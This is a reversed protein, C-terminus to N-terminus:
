RGGGANRGPQPHPHHRQDRWCGRAKARLASAVTPGVSAKGGGTLNNAFTEQTIGFAYPMMNERTLPLLAATQILCEWEHLIREPAYAEMMRRGTAGLRRALQPDDLVRRLAAALAEPSRETVLLGNQGDVILSNVGACDAFGVCPLGCASAEAVALPFAEFQSPLAFIGGEALKAKLGATHGPLNVRGSLGLREILEGYFERYLGEGYIVLEVDPYTPALLAFALLLLSFRKQVEELRGVSILRAPQFFTEAGAFLDPLDVPNAIAAAKGRLEGPLSRLFDPLLVHVAAARRMADLRAARSWSRTEVAEPPYHESMVYPVRLGSLLRLGWEAEAGAYFVVAVKCVDLIERAADPDAAADVHKGPMTYPTANGGAGASFTVSEHGHRALYDALQCIVRGIGDRQNFLPPYILAIRM